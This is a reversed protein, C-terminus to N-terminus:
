RKAMTAIGSRKRLDDMSGIRGMEVMKVFAEAALLVDPLARHRNNPLPLKLRLALADLNHRFENPFIAQSLRMTCFYEPLEVYGWCFEKENRLFSMDFEANHAVLISGAAFTLFQPLVVDITHAGSVMADTIKNVQSAELPISREPNVYSEFPQTRQVTGNEIRVAAIEIIRHGRRPDLGTTEVDFVTFPPLPSM